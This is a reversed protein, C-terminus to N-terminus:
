DRPVYELMSATVVLDFDRWGAPLAGPRLVDAQTLEVGTVGAAALKARLRELMAPNLDFARIPGPELGRALLADHVALTLAGTGCGADLVRLGSRLLPSQRFYARLGQPYRVLGIFRDYSGSRRSYLGVPDAAIAPPQPTM